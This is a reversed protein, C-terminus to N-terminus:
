IDFALYGLYTNLDIIYNLDLELDNYYNLVFSSSIVSLDLNGFLSYHPSPWKLILLM